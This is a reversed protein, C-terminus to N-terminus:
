ELRTLISHGTMEKPKPLGMLELITPAVDALTDKASIIKSLANPEYSIATRLLNKKNFPTILIFPVPNLTHLTERENFIKQNISIM